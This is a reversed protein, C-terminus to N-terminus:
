AEHVKKEIDLIIHVYDMAHGSPNAAVDDRYANYFRDVIQNVDDENRGALATRFVTESWSRMTPILSNAYDINSMIGGVGGGALFAAEYPCKTLKSSCSILKLGAKSVASDPNRFPACFEDMTRYYQAFSALKYEEATISGDEFLALWYKHFNDFM